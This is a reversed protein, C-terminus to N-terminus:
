ANREKKLTRELDGLDFSLAECLCMGRKRRNGRFSCIGLKYSPVADRPRERQLEQAASVVLVGVETFAVLRPCRQVVSHDV